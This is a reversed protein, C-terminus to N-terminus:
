IIFKFFILFIVGPIGFFGAILATYINIGISFNFFGGIFNVIFLLVAGLIGNLVLKGLIKLPFALFKGILFLVAIAILFTLLIKPDM